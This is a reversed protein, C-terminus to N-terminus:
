SLLVLISSSLVPHNPQYRFYVNEFVIKGLVHLSSSSSSSSLLSGLEIDNIKTTIVNNNAAVDDDAHTADYIDEGPIDVYQLIREPCVMCNEFWSLNFVVGIKTIIFILITIIPHSQENTTIGELGSCISLAYSIALGVFGPDIGLFVLISIFLM